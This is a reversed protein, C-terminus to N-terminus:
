LNIQDRVLGETYLAVLNASQRVKSAEDTGVRIEVAVKTRADWQQLARVFAQDTSVSLMFVRYARMWEGFAVEGKKEIFKQALTCVDKSKAQENLILVFLAHAVKNSGLALQKTEMFEAVPGDIFAKRENYGVDMKGILIKNMTNEHLLQKTYESFDDRLEKYIELELINGIHAQAAEIEEPQNEYFCAALVRLVFSELLRKKCDKKNEGRIYNDPKAAAEIETLLSYGEGEETVWFDMKKTLFKDHFRVYAHKQALTELRSYLFKSLSNLRNQVQVGGSGEGVVPLRAFDICSQVIKAYVLADAPGEFMTYISLLISHAQELFRDRRWSQHWGNYEQIIGCFEKDYDCTGQYREDRMITTLLLELESDISGKNAVFLATTARKVVVSQLRKPLYRKDENKYYLADISVGKMVMDFVVEEEASLVLTELAHKKFIQVVANKIREVYATVAADAFEVALGDGVVELQKGVDFFRRVDNFTQVDAIASVAAPALFRQLVVQAKIVSRVYSGSLDMALLFSNAVEYLSMRLGHAYNRLVEHLADRPKEYIANTKVELDNELTIFYQHYENLKTKLKDTQLDSLEKKCLKNVMKELAARLGVIRQGIDEEMAVGHAGTEPYYRAVYYGVRSGPPADKWFYFDQHFAKLSKLSEMAEPTIYAADDMNRKFLSRLDQNVLRLSEDIVAIKQDIQQVLVPQDGIQIKLARATAQTIKYMDVSEEQLFWEETTKKCQEIVEELQELKLEFSDQSALMADLKAVQDRTTQFVIQFRKEKMVDFMEVSRKCFLMKRDLEFVKDLRATLDARSAAEILGELAAPCLAKASDLAANIHSVANYGRIKASYSRWFFTNRVIPLEKEILSFDQQVKAIKQDVESMTVLQVEQMLGAPPINRVAEVQVREFQM